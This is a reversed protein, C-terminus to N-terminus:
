SLGQRRSAVNRLENRGRHAPSQGMNFLHGKAWHHSLPASNQFRPRTWQIQETRPFVASWIMVVGQLM